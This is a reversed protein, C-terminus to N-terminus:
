KLNRTIPRCIPSSARTIPTSLSLQSSAGSLFSSEWPFLSDGTVMEQQFWLKYNSYQMLLKILIAITANSFDYGQAVITKFLNM